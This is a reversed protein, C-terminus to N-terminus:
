KEDTKFEAIVADRIEGINKGTTDIKVTNLNEYLPIRAVSRSIIDESRLGGAVDKQLRERLTAEDCVLSFTRVECNGAALSNVIADIIGQEHMVWCFIINEYASCHIFQNLLFSINEHVMKKTEDTVQFPNMDWCWDGDLFVSAPLRKKLEQCVTTKGVGMTGGIIYVKKM